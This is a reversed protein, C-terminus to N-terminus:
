GLFNQDSTIVSAILSRTQEKSAFSSFPLAADSLMARLLLFVFKNGKTYFFLNLEKTM